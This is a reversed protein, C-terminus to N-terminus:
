LTGRCHGLIESTRIRPESMPREDPWLSTADWMGCSSPGVVLFFIYSHVLPRQPSFPFFLIMLFFFLAWKRPWSQHHPLKTWASAEVPQSESGPCPGIYRNNLWATAPMVCIFYLFISVSTSEPGTKKLLAFPSNATSTLEPCIKRWFFFTSMQEPLRTTLPLRSSFNRYNLQSLLNLFLHSM